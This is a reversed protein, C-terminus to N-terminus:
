NGNNPTCDTEISKDDSDDESFFVVQFKEGLEAGLLLTNMALYLWSMFVIVSTLPGYVNSYMDFKVIIFSFVSKLIQILVASFAAGILASKLSVRTRPILVYILFIMIVWISIPAILSVVFWLLQFQSLEVGFISVNWDSAAAVLSDLLFSAWFLIGSVAFVIFAIVKGWVFSGIRGWFAGGFKGLTFRRKTDEINWVKNLVGQLTNFVKMGSWLLGLVSLGNFLARPPESIVSNIRDLVKSASQPFNDSLLKRVFEQAAESSGLIYGLTSIALLTLPILSLMAFFSIGAARIPCEDKDFDKLTNIFVNKLKHSLKGEM